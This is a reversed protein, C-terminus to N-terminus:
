GRGAVPRRGSAYVKTLEAGYFLFMASVYVWMLLALVSGAAGYGQTLGAHALFFAIAWQGGIFLLATVAAGLWVDNWRIPTQPLVKFATAFLLTAVALSLLTSVIPLLWAVSAVLPFRDLYTMVVAVAADASFTLVLMLAMVFVMGLARARERLVRGLPVNKPPTVQWIINLADQLTLFIGSAAGALVIWGIAGLVSGTKANARSANVMAQLASAADHGVSHSVQNVLHAEVADSNVLRGTLAMVIVFLPALAFITSFSLAGALTPARDDLWAGFAHTFLTTNNPRANNM